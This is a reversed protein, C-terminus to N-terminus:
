PQLNCSLSMVEAHCHIGHRLVDDLTHLSVGIKQGVDALLVM